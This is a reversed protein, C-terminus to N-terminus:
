LHFFLHCLVDSFSFPTIYHHTFLLCIICVIFMYMDFFIHVYKEFSDLAEDTLDTKTTDRRRHNWSSCRPRSTSVRIHRHLRPWVM